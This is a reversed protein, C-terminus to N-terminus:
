LRHLDLGISLGARFFRRQSLWSLSTLSDEMQKALDGCGKGTLAEMAQRAQNEQRLREARDEALLTGCRNEAAYIYLAEFLTDM